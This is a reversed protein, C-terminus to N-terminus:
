KWGPNQEINKNLNLQDQPLPYLYYKKDYRRVGLSGNLYGNTFKLEAALKPDTFAKSATMNAGLM